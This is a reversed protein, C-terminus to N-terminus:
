RFSSEVKWIRWVFPKTWLWTLGKFSLLHMFVIIVTSYHLNRLLKRNKISKGFAKACVFRFPEMPCLLQDVRDHRTWIAHTEDLRFHFRINRTLHMSYFLDIYIFSELKAHILRVARNMEDDYSYVTNVHRASISRWIRTDVGKPGTHPMSPIHQLPACMRAALHPSSGSACLGSCGGIAGGGNEKPAIAAPLRLHQTSVFPIATM